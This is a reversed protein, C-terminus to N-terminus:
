LSKRMITGEVEPFSARQVIGSWFFLYKLYLMIALMNMFYCTKLRYVEFNLKHHTYLLFFDM